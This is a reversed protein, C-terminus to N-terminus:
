NSRALEAKAKFFCYVYHMDGLIFYNIVKFNLAEVRQLTLAHEM